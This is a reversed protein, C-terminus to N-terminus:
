YLDHIDTKSDFDNWTGDFFLIYRIRNEIQKDDPSTTM